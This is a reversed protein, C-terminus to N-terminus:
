PTTVVSLQQTLFGAGGLDDRVVAHVVCDGTQKPKWQTLVTDYTLGGSGDATVELYAIPDDVGGCTTFWQVTLRAPEDEAGPSGVLEDVSTADLTVGLSVKYKELDADGADVEVVASPDATEDAVILGTVVPNVNAPDRTSVVVRKLSLLCDFTPAGGALTDQCQVMGDPGGAALMYVFFTRQEGDDPFADAPVTYVATDGVGAICARAAPDDACLPPASGPPLHASLCSMINDSVDPVCVLWFLTPQGGPWHVLADLLVTDGPALEPPTARIVLVQHDDGLESAPPFKECAAVLLAATLIALVACRHGFGKSSRLSKM